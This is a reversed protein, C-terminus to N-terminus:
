GVKEVGLHQVGAIAERAFQDQLERREARTMPGHGDVHQIDEALAPDFAPCLEKVDGYKYNGWPDDKGACIRVFGTADNVVRARTYEGREGDDRLVIYSPTELGTDDAAQLLEELRAQWWEPMSGIALRPIVLYGQRALRESYLADALKADATM